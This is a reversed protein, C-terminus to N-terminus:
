LNDDIEIPIDPVDGEGTKNSDSISLLQNSISIRILEFEPNVYKKKIM